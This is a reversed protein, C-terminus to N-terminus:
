VQLNLMEAYTEDRQGFGQIQARRRASGQGSHKGCEGPELPVYQPFPDPGAQGVGTLVAFSQSPGM